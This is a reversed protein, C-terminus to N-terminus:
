LLQQCRAATAQFTCNCSMMRSVANFEGGLNHRRLFGTSSTSGPIEGAAVAGPKVNFIDPVESSRQPKWRRRATEAATRVRATAKAVTSSALSTARASQMGWAALLTVAVQVPVVVL